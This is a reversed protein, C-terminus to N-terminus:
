VVSKRDSTVHLRAALEGVTIEEPITISLNKRRQRELELRRMKADEKEKRSMVPKGARRQASRQTLKQKQAATDRNGLKSQALNDYKENYKEMEVQTSGARTDVTMGGQPRQRPKQQQPAQQNQQQGGQRNDQRQQNGRNQQGGQQRQGGQQQGQRQQNGRNQQGAQRNDQRQQARPQSAQQPQAPQQEKAQQPQPKPQQAAARAEKAQQKAAQKKAEGAAFYEDFNEVQNQSTYHHLVLSLEKEDLATMSKREGEFNAALLDLVEKSQVGLDKAVEHVRYKEIM